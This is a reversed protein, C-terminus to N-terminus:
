SARAAIRRVLLGTFLASPVVYMWVAWVSRADTGELLGHLTSLVFVPISLQHLVRWVRQGIRPRAYSTLLIVAIGYMALIGFGTEMPRYVAGSLLFIKAWPFPVATDLHLGSLHLALFGLMLSSAFQHLQTVLRRARLRDWIGSSSTVGLIATFALLEYATFGAAREMYWFVLNRQAASPTAVLVWAYSAALVMLLFVVAAGLPYWSVRERVNEM